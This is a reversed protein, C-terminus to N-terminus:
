GASASQIPPPESQFRRIAREVMERRLEYGPADNTGIMEASVLGSLLSVLDKIEEIYRQLQAKTSEGSALLEGLKRYIRDRAAREKAVLGPYRDLPGMLLRQWAMREPLLIQDLVIAAIAKLRAPYDGRIMSTLAENAAFQAERERMAEELLGERGGFRNYIVQRTIGIERAIAPLSAQDLGHEVFHRLAVERLRRVMEESEAPKPRGRKKKVDADVATPLAGKHPVIPGSPAAQFSCHIDTDSHATGGNHLDEPSM